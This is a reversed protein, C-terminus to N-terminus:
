DHVKRDKKEKIWKAEAEALRLYNPVLLHPDDAQKYLSALVLHSPKSLHFLSEPIVAKEGLHTVIYEKYSEIHPSLFLIPQDENKLQMLWEDMAIHCEEKYAIMQGNGWQYLGTYINHRRADMFPCVLGQFFRGQYSLTELSSVGIVPINLSWALTKATTVGIRVGTYSGPGIAVVIKNLDEAKMGVDKMLQVIAPMLRLSHTKPINTTLEAIVQNDRVIAVGLVQNSTDIALINM